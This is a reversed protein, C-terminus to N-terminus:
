HLQATEVQSPGKDSKGLAILGEVVGAHLQTRRAHLADVGDHLGTAEVILRALKREEHSQRALATYTAADHCDIGRAIGDGNPTRSEVLVAIGDHADLRELPKGGLGALRYESLIWKSM